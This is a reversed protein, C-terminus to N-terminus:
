KQMGDEWKIGLQKFLNNIQGYVYYTEIYFYKEDEAYTKGSDGWGGDWEELTVKQLGDHLGKIQKKNLYVKAIIFSSSSSNSIFGQRTKM